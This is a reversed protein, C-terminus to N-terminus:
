FNKISDRIARCLHFLVYGEFDEVPDNTKRFVEEITNLQQLLGEKTMAGTKLDEALSESVGLAHKWLPFNEKKM